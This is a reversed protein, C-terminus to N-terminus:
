GGIEVAVPTKRGQSELSALDEVAGLPAFPATGGSEASAPAQELDHLDRRRYSSGNPRLCLGCLELLDRAAFPHDGHDLVANRLTPCAQRRDVFHKADSRAKLRALHRM